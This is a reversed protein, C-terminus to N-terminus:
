VDMREGRYFLMNRGLGLGFKMLSLYLRLHPSGHRILRERAATCSCREYCPIRLERLKWIIHYLWVVESEDNKRKRACAKVSQAYLEM